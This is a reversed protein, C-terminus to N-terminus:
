STPPTDARAAWVPEDDLFCSITLTHADAYTDADAGTPADADVSEGAPEGGSGCTSDGVSGVARPVTERGYCARALRQAGKIGNWRGM